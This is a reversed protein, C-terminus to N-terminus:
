VSYKTFLEKIEEIIYDVEYDRLLPYIPLSVISNFLDNARPYDDNKLKYM